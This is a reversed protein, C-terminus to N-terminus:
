SSPERRVNRSLGAGAWWEDPIEDREALRSIIRHMGSLHEPDRHRRAIHDARAVSAYTRWLREGRISRDLEHLDDMDADDGDWDSGTESEPGDCDNISPDDNGLSTMSSNMSQPISSSSAAAAASSSAFSSGASPPQPDPTISTLLTDWTAEAEPYLPSISRDRDGLGDLRAQAAERRARENIHAAVRYRVRSSPGERIYHFTNGTAHFSHDTILRNAEIRRLEPDSEDINGDGFFPLARERMLRLRDGMRPEERSEEDVSVRDEETYPPTPVAHRRRLGLVQQVSHIRDNERGIAHREFAFDRSEPVPPLPGDPEGVLIQRETNLRNARRSVGDQARRAEVIRSLVAAAAEPLANSRGYELDPYGRIPEDIDPPSRSPLRSTDWASSNSPANSDTDFM